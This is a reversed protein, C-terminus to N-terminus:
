AANCPCNLNWFRARIYPALANVWVASGRRSSLMVGILPYLRLSTGFGAVVPVIWNM